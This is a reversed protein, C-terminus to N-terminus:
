NFNTNDINYDKITFMKLYIIGITIIIPTMPNDRAKPKPSPRPKDLEREVTTPLNQFSLKKM